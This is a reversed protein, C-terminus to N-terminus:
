NEVRIKAKHDRPNNESQAGWHMQAKYRQLSNIQPPQLAHSKLHEYLKQSM